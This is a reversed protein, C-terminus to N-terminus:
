FDAALADHVERRLAVIVRADRGLHVENTLLVAWHGSPPDLAASTGTFGTHGVATWPWDRGMHDWRDGRLTWGLGRRAPLHATQCRLAEARIEPRVLGNITPECWAALYRAVDPGTSFLGAHGAVGGLSEANEDHVVGVKAVGRADRETAACRPLWENPPRFRTETMGLPGFVLAHAASDLGVGTIEEVIMGLLLFGIDSYVMSSGPAAVLPVQPVAQWRQEEDTDLEYFAYGDPLGSTHSLLQRITVLDRVGGGFAPLYRVVPDDFDLAQDNALRLISPLTALVKTLSALDFVSDTTVPAGGTALCGTAYTQDIEGARGTVLVAGPPRGNAIASDILDRAGLM